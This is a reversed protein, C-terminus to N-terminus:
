KDEDNLIEKLQKSLKVYGNQIASDYDIIVLASKEMLEQMEPSAEAYYEAVKGYHFAAHRYAAAKLFEKEESTVSSDEIEQILDQTKTLDFCQVLPPNEGTIEYQPTGIVDTYKSDEVDEGDELIDILEKEDFGILSIDFDVLKLDELELKLLDMDWGANEALRNDALIYAKKQAETLGVLRVIPVEKKGLKKAAMLRGHGAIVGNDEDVLIPNAFGFEKISAALQTVQSESHTRANNVYPILDDPNIYEVDKLKKIAM